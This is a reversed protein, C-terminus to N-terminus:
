LDKEFWCGKTSRFTLEFGMGTFFGIARENNALISCGYRPHGAARVIEEFRLTTEISAKSSRWQPDIGMSLFRVPCQNPPDKDSVAATTAPPRMGPILMRLAHMAHSTRALVARRADGNTISKTAICMALYPAHSRYFHKFHAPVNASGTAVAVLKGTRKSRAVCGYSYPHLCFEAYFRKLFGHGMLTLFYGPFAKIHLEPLEDAHWPRLDEVVFDFEGPEAPTLSAGAAPATTTSTSGVGSAFSPAPASAPMAGPAANLTHQAAGNTAAAGAPSAALFESLDDLTPHDFVLTAPLSRGSAKRLAGVLEIALLSDLGQETLPQDSALAQQGDVGLVKGAEQAILQRWWDRDHSAGVAPAAVTVREAVATATAASSTSAAPTAVRESPPAYSAAAPGSTAPATASLHAALADITPHDFVLTAPLGRGTAKRLAGVLEIALLSDLGMDVLPRATDIPGGADLGLVKATERTVLDLADTPSTAAAITAALPTSPASGPQAARSAAVIPAAVPAPSSPMASAPETAALFAALADVTPYDFVLAAPLNRGTLKRLAGVLEIALLSDLGQETLPQDSALQKGADTGLVRTAAELIAAHWGERPSAAASGIAPVVAERTATASAAQSLAGRDRRAASARSSAALERLMAPEEGPASHSLFKAWDVPLVAVDAERRDILRGLANLGDQPPILEIGAAAFRRKGAEGLGAAMGADAWPGWAISTAPLRRAHRDAALADLLSNAAAYNGQGASGLWAALSSFLVFFDLSSSQTAQDLNWAGAVKPAFVRTFREATQGVLVGDDLVGAAHIVGALPASSGNIEAVLATIETLNAADVQCARVRVGRQEFAAIQMAASENPPRRSMLVLHRAGREVLWEAIRRGLGGLGGTILYTADGRIEIPKADHTAGTANASTDTDISTKPLAPMTLVVKGIHKAQAMFRFGAVADALPFERRPPAKLRGDALLEMLERTLQGVLEPQQDFMADLAITTYHVGPRFEAVQEATWIGTKGIELFHGGPRVLELSKAIYDGALSNIVVDVGAGGTLRPVEDAFDLTRSPLVHQVGLSKLYQRKEESGATAFIEAGAALAMQVAAVGVGGAAAPILVRQGASLQAIHKLGYLATLFTVPVSAADAFSLSAPKRVALAARTIAYTSFCGFGTAVVEDGVAPQSVGPGVATVVGACELGPDGPDGPYRGLANLVDRFNLGAARVEIEVQGAAPAQRPRPVLQLNGLTGREPISLQVPENTPTGSSSVQSASTSPAASGHGSSRLPMLRQVFRQGGRFVVQDERDTASLEAALSKLSEGDADPDLDVRVCSLEPHETAIVRGLGWLSSAALNQVAETPAISTAGRTVIWLPTPSSGGARILSQVLQTALACYGVSVSSLATGDLQHSDSPNTAAQGGLLAIVGLRSNSERAQDIASQVRRALENANAPTITAPTTSQGAGSDLTWRAQVCAQGRSILEAALGSAADADDALLLWTTRQTSTPVPAVAPAERWAATYLWRDIGATAPAAQLLADRAAGKLRLGRMEVIPRGADDYLWLDAALVAQGPRGQERFRAQCFAPVSWSPSVRLTEVSFPVYTTGLKAILIQFCADILGPHLLFGEQDAAPLRIRSAVDLDAFATQDNWHFRPGLHIEREAMRRYFQELNLREQAAKEIATFAARDLPAALEGAPGVAVEGQAHVRWAGRGSDAAADFSVVKFEHGGNQPDLLLQIPRVEDPALVVAQPFLVDSLTIAGPGFQARATAILRSLHCAGPIVVKDYVWHDGLLPLTAVGLQSEFQLTALPSRVRRGILTAQPSTDSSEASEHTTAPLATATTVSMSSEAARPRAATSSAPLDLWYREHQFPYTPLAIRPRVRDRYYGRWDVAVGLAWLRAVAEALARENDVGASQSAATAVWRLAANSNTEIAAPAAGLVLATQIGLKGLSEGASTLESHSRLRELWDNAILATEKPGPRGTAASLWLPQSKGLQLPEGSPAAAARFAGDGADLAAALQLSTRLDLTGALCAAALEGRGAGVIAAPQVGWSRWLQALAFTALLTAAASSASDPPEARGALWDGLSRSLGDELMFLARDATSRFAPEAAYWHPAASLLETANDPILWAVKPQAARPVQGRFVGPGEAPSETAADRALEAVRARLEDLSEVVLAARQGLAARGINATFALDALTVDAHADLFKGYREALQGLAPATRASLCVVQQKRPAVAQPRRVVEPAQELVVFANTGGIGLSNVGARRPQLRAPWDVLSLNAYFPTTPFDIRPNSKEFHLTPPLKGHHVALAAKILGAVGAAAELHGINSKVSGLACFGTESTSGRFAKTMASVEVPDGMVTATGHAEVLGITAPDCDSMALAEAMAGMQGAESTSTFSLKAGGDNNVASAKIVAYIHDGAALADSLRKLAVVAAGSGFLTGRAAADFTRCHGDPSVIGGEDFHYGVYHPVRVTSGGALAMDCEHALLSQCAVHVAVLSTSCASQVTMSPGRLNLKFSVRTSLYDKDNAIHQLSGTAGYVAEVHRALAFGYSSVLGGAGGYVGVPVETHLPDYGADELAAWAAELFLRHQPDMLRAERPTYDFLAADFGEVDDLVPSAKVYTPDALTAEDVGAARLEDDSFRRVSEVGRCLNDWFEAISGAGPFRGAMGVIAIGQAASDNAVSGNTQM